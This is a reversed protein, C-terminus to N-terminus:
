PNIYEVATETTSSAMRLWNSRRVMTQRRKSSQGALSERNSRGSSQGFFSPLLRNHAGGQEHRSTMSRRALASCGAGM